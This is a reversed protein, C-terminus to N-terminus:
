RHPRRRLMTRAAGCRTPPPAAAHHPRRRLMTRAAGSPQVLHAPYPMIERTLWAEVITSLYSRYRRLM